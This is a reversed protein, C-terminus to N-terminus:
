GEQRIETIILNKIRTSKAWQTMEDDGIVFHPDNYPITDFSPTYLVPEGNNIQMSCDKQYNDLLLTIHTWENYPPIPTLSKSLSAGNNNRGFEFKWVDYSGNYQVYWIRRSSIDNLRCDFIRMIQNTFELPMTDFEIKLTKISSLDVDPLRAKFYSYRDLLLGDNFKNDTNSGKEFIDFGYGDFNNILPYEALIKYPLLKDFAKDVISVADDATLKHWGLQKFTTANGPPFTYGNVGPKDPLEAYTSVGGTGGGGSDGGKAKSNFSSQPYGKGMIQVTGSGSLYVDKINPVGLDGLTASTGANIILVDGDGRKIDSHTSMLVESGSLNNCEVYAFPKDFEVKTEGGTLDITKVNSM